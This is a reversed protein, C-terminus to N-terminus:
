AGRAAPGGPMPAAGGARDGGAAGPVGAREGATEPPDAIHHGFRARHEARRREHEAIREMLQARQSRAARVVLVAAATALAVLGVVMPGLWPRGEFWGTSAVILAAFAIAAGLAVVAVLTLTTAVETAGKVIKDRLSLRAREAEIKAIEDAYSRLEGLRDWLGKAQELWLEGERRAAEADEAKAAAEAARREARAAQEIVEDSPRM